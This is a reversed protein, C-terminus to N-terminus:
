SLKELTSTTPPQTRISPPQPRTLLPMSRKPSKNHASIFSLLSVIKSCHRLSDLCSPSAADPGYYMTFRVTALSVNGCDIDREPQALELTLSRDTRNVLVAVGPEQKPTLCHADVCLTM